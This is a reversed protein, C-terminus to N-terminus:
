RRGTLRHWAKQVPTLVARILLASHAIEHMRQEQGEIAGLLRDLKGSVEKMEPDSEKEVVPPAPMAPAASTGCLLDILVRQERLQDMMLQMRREQLSETDAIRTGGRRLFAFFEFGETPSVSELRWDIMGMQSLELMILAFSAPTLYWCHFDVYPASPDDKLATVMAHASGFTDLFRPAGTAHSNWALGGDLGTSYAMHAWVTRVGHRVRGVRHAELIDGTTTAPKLCDFCFRRDPLALAIVGDPRLLREASRLFTIMDPMHELVHSAIMTDFRGIWEPAVAQDLPGDHWVTDVSEIRNVDVNAGAYKERLTAQDAHDVVHTLWGDSKPAIPNYGAGVEIIRSQRTSMSLLRATRDLTQSVKKIIQPTNPQVATM